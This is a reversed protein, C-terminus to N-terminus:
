LMLARSRIEDYFRKTAEKKYTRGLPIDAELHQMLISDSRIEKIHTLSVIYSRHVRVFNDSGLKISINDLTDPFSIIDGNLLHLQLRNNEGTEIYVIEIARVRRTGSKTKFAYEQRDKTRAGVGRIIESIDSPNPPSKLAGTVHLETALKLKQVSNTYVIFIDEKHYIRFRVANELTKEENTDLSMFTADFNVDTELLAKTSRFRSILAHQDYSIICEELIDLNEKIDDCIAIKLQM